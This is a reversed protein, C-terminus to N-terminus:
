KISFYTPRHRCLIHRVGSCVTRRVCVVQSCVAMKEGDDREALCVAQLTTSDMECTADCRLSTMSM